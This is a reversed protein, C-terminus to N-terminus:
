KFKKEIWNDALIDDFDPEYEVDPSNKISSHLLLVEDEDAFVYAEDDWSEIKVAGFDGEKLKMFAEKMEM